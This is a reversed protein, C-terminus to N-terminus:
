GSPAVATSVPLRAGCPQTMFGAAASGRKRLGTALRDREFIVIVHREFDFAVIEVDRRVVHQHQFVGSRFASGAHRFPAHQRDRLLQDFGAHAVHHANGVCAHAACAVAGADQVDGRFTKDATRQRQHLGAVLDLDIDRCAANMQVDAVVFKRAPAGGPSRRRRMIGAAIAGHIGGCM